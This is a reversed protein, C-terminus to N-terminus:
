AYALELALWVVNLNVGTYWGPVCCTFRHGDVLLCGEFLLQYLHLSCADDLWRVMGCWSDVAKDNDIFDVRTAYCAGAECRSSGELMLWAM